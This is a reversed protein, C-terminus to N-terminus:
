LELILLGMSNISWCFILSSSMSSILVLNRQMIKSTYSCTSKYFELWPTPLSDYFFFFKIELFSLVYIKLEVEMEL